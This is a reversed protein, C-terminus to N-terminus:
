FGNKFLFYLYILYNYFNNKRSMYFTRTILKKELLLDGSLTLDKTKITEWPPMTSCRKHLCVSNLSLSIGAESPMTDM